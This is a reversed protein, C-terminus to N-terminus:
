CWIAQAMQRSAPLEPCQNSAVPHISPIKSPMPGTLPLNEPLRKSIGFIVPHGTGLIAALIGALTGENKLDRVKKLGNDTHVIFFMSPMGKVNVLWHQIKGPFVEYFGFEEVM